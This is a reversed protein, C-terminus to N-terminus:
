FNVREVHGLGPFVDYAGRGRVVSRALSPRLSGVGPYNGHLVSGGVPPPGQHCVSVETHVGNAQGAQEPKTVGEM